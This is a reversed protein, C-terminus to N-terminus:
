WRYTWRIYFIKLILIVWIFWLQFALWIFPLMRTRRTWLFHVRCLTSHHHHENPCIVNIPYYQVMSYRWPLYYISGVVALKQLVVKTWFEPSVSLVQLYLVGDNKMVICPTVSSSSDRVEQMVPLPLNQFMWREWGIHIWAIIIEEGFHFFWQSPGTVVCSIFKDTSYPQWYLVDVFISIRITYSVKWVNPLLSLNPSPPVISFIMFTTYTYADNKVDTRSWIAWDTLWQKSQQNVAWVSRTSVLFPFM